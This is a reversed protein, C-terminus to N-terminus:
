PENSAQNTFKSVLALLRQDMQSYSKKEARCNSDFRTKEQMCRKAWSDAWPELVKKDAKMETVYLIWAYSLNSRPDQIPRNHAKLLTAATKKQERFQSECTKQDLHELACSEEILSQADTLRTFAEGFDAATLQALIKKRLPSNKQTSSELDHISFGLAKEVDSQPSPRLLSAGM